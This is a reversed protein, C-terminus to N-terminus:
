DWQLITLLMGAGRRTNSCNHTWFVHSLFEITEATFFPFDLESEISGNGLMFLLEMVGVDESLNSQVQFPTLLANGINAPWSRAYFSVDVATSTPNFEGGYRLWERVDDMVERADEWFNRAPEAAGIIGALTGVQGIVGVYPMRLVIDRDRAAVSVGVAERSRISFNAGTNRRARTSGNREEREIFFNNGEDRRISISGNTTNGLVLSEGAAVRVFRVAPNLYRTIATEPQTYFAIRTSNGVVHPSVLMSQGAELRRNRSSAVNHTAVSGDANYIVYAMHAGAHHREVSIRRNTTNTIRISEGQEVWVMNRSTNSRALVDHPAIITMVMVVALLAALGKRVLNFAKEM